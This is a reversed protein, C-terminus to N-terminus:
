GLVHEVNPELNFAGCGCRTDGGYALTYLNKAAWVGLTPGVEHRLQRSPRGYVHYKSLIRRARVRGYRPMLVFVTDALGVVSLASCM